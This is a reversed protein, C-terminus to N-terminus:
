YNYIQKASELSKLLVKYKSNSKNLKIKCKIVKYM